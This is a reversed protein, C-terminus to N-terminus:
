NKTAALAKKRAEEVYHDANHRIDQRDKEGLTRIVKGPVGIVLSNEEITKGEGVLTGAGILSGKKIHSGNLLIAGMGILCDDEITAGHIIAGHGITVNSGIQIPYGPDTHLICGDQINSRDGITVLESETRIVANHWISVDQGLRVDGEIQAGPGLFLPKQTQSNDNQM